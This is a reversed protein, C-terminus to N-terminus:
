VHIEFENKEIHYKFFKCYRDPAGDKSIKCINLEKLKVPDIKIGTEELVERVAADEPSEIGEVNGKVIGRKAHKKPLFRYNVTFNAGTELLTDFRIEGINLNEQLNKARETFATKAQEITTYNTSLQQQNEIYDEFIKKIPYHKNETTSLLFDSITNLYKQDDTLDSVYKSEIGIFIKPERNSGTIWLVVGAKEITERGISM